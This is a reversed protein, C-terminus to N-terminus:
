LAISATLTWIEQECRACGRKHGGVSDRYKGYMIDSLLFFILSLAVGHKSYGSYLAKNQCSQESSLGSNEFQKPHIGMELPNEM